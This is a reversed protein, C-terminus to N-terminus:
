RVKATIGPLKKLDKELEAAFRPLQKPSQNPSIILSSPITNQKPGDLELLPGKGNSNMSRKAAWGSRVNKLTDIEARSLPIMHACSVKNRFDEYNVSTKCARKKMNDILKFSTDAQLAEILEKELKSTNIQGSPDLISTKFM